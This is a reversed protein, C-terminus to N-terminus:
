DPMRLFPSAQLMGTTADLLRKSADPYAEEKSTQGAHKDVNRRRHFLQCISTDADTSQVRAFVADTSLASRTTRFADIGANALSFESGVAVGQSSGANIM